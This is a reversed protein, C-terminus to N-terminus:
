AAAHELEQVFRIIRRSAERGRERDVDSVPPHDVLDGLIIIAITLEQGLASIIDRIHRPPAARFQRGAWDVPFLAQWNIGIAAIVEESTCGAFDHILVRGDDLERISLSARGDDHAPCRAMWRGPGSQRVKDLRSLLLDAGRPSARLENSHPLRTATTHNM